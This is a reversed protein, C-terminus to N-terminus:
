RQVFVTFVSVSTLLHELKRRPSLLICECVEFLEFASGKRYTDDKKKSETPLVSFLLARWGILLVATSGMTVLVFSYAPIHGSSASRIIIGLQLSLFL